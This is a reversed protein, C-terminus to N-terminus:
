KEDNRLPKAGAGRINIFKSLLDFWFPAGLSLALGTVFWGALTTVIFGVIPWCGLDSAPRHFTTWGIPLPRLTQDANRFSNVIDAPTPADSQDPKKEVGQAPKKEVTSQASQVIQARLTSDSWLAKAVTFTNANMMTAVFCGIVISIVKLNRKYAGGLREMSDDFWTALNKRFADFNSQAAMLNAVLASKVQSPPLAQIANKVDDFTPITQNQAVRTGTLSGLLALVFTDASLYSPHDGEQQAADPANSAPAAAAASGPRPDVAPANAEAPALPTARLLPAGSQLARSTGSILGHDYFANRVTPDDLLEQLGGKLSASRLKLKTAIFENVITCLLSLVLYMLILGIAVDIAANQFM